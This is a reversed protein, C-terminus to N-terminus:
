NKDGKIKDLECVASFFYYDGYILAMHKGENYSVCGYNLLAEDEGNDWPCFYKDCAEILKEAGNLYKEDGCAKYLKLMGCAALAAASSDYLEVDDPQCFDCPVKFGRKESQKLFNDACNKATDLYRKEGCLLYSQAMGDICWGQGRTWQSGEGYGQGGIEKNYEGTIDNFSVIHKSSGDERIFYKIVTDAHAMAIAKFNNNKLEKSAWHLLPINMMCDIIAKDSNIHEGWNNWACIYNGKINFRSALVGAATLADNRSKLNGTKKYNEVGTLLWLFGLDHDLSTFSTHLVNALKDEVGQAWLRYKEEGTEEYLKWLLGAWFSNTWWKIQKEDSKDDYIGNTTTYPVSDKIRASTKELKELCKKKLLSIEM